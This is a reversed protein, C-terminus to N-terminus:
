ETARGMRWVSVKQLLRNVILTADAQPFYYADQLPSFTAVTKEYPGLKARFKRDSWPDGAFVNEMVWKKLALQREVSARSRGEGITITQKAELNNSISAIKGNEKWKPGVFIDAEYSGKPLPKGHDLAEVTFTTTPGTLTVDRQAGIATDDDRQGQLDLSAMAAIPTPLNTRVTFQVLRATLSRAAITLSPKEPVVQAPAKSASDAPQSARQGCASALITLAATGAMIRTRELM